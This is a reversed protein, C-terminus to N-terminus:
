WGYDEFRQNMTDVCDKIATKVFSFHILNGVYGSIVINQLIYAAIYSICVWTEWSMLLLFNFLVDVDSQLTM